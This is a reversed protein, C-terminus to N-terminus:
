FLYFRTQRKICRAVLFKGDNWICQWGYLHHWQVMHIPFCIAMHFLDKEVCHRAKSNASAYHFHRASSLKIQM